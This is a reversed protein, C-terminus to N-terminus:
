TSNTTSLQRHNHSISRCYSNSLEMLSLIRSKLIAVDVSVSM